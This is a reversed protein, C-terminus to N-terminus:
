AYHYRQQYTKVVELNKALVDWLEYGAHAAWRADSDTMIVPRAEEPHAGPAPNNDARDTVSIVM